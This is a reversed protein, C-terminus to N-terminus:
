AITFFAEVTDVASASNAWLSVVVVFIKLPANSNISTSGILDEDITDALTLRSQDNNLVNALSAGLVLSVVRLVVSAAAAGSVGENISVADEDSASFIFDVGVFFLLTNAIESVVENFSDAISARLAFNVVAFSLGAFIRNGWDASEVLIPVFAAAEALESEDSNGSYTHFARFVGSVAPVEVGADAIISVIEDTLLDLLKGVM